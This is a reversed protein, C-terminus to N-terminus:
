RAIITYKQTQEPLNVFQSIDISLAKAIMGSFIFISFLFVLFIALKLFAKVVFSLFIQIM